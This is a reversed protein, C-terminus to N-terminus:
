TSKVYPEEDWDIQYSPQEYVLFAYKSKGAGYFPLPPMYEYIFTGKEIDCGPIDVVWWLIRQSLLQPRDEGIPYLDVM